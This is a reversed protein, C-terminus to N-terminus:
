KVGQHVSQPASYGVSLTLWIKMVSSPVFAVFPFLLTPHPLISYTLCQIPDSLFDFTLATLSTTPFGQDVLFCPHSM